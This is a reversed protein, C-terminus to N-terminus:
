GKKKLLLKLENVPKLLISHNMQNIVADIQVKSMKPLTSKYHSTVYVTARTKCQGFIDTGFKCNRHIIVPYVKTEHENDCKGWQYDRPVVRVPPYKNIDSIDIVPYENDTEAMVFTSVFLLCYLLKMCGRTYNLSM